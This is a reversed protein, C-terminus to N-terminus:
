AQVQVTTGIQRFDIVLIAVASTPALLTSVCSHAVMEIRVANMLIKQKLFIIRM